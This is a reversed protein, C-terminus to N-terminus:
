WGELPDAPVMYCSCVSKGGMHYGGDLYRRIKSRRDTDGQFRYGCHTCRMLGDGSLLYSSKVGLGPRRRPGNKAAQLRAQARQWLSREVLAEHCDGIVICEDESRFFF